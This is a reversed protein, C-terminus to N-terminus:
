GYSHEYNGELHLSLLYLIYLNYIIHHVQDEEGNPVITLAVADYYRWTHM